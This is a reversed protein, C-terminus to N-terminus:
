EGLRKLILALRKILQYVDDSVVTKKFFRPLWDEAGEIDMTTLLGIVKSSKIKKLFREDENLVCADTFFVILDYKKILDKTSELNEWGGNCLFHTLDEERQVIEYGIPTTLIVDVPLKLEMFALAIHMANVYPFGQM